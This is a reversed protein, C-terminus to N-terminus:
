FSQFYVVGDSDRALAVTSREAPTSSDYYPTGDTDLGVFVQIGIDSMVLDDSYELNSVPRRQEVWKQEITRHPTRSPLPRNQPSDDEFKVYITEGAIEGQDPPIRLLMIESHDSLEDFDEREVKSDTVIVFSGERLARVGTTLVADPRGIPRYKGQRVPRTTAGFSQPGWSHATGPRLPDSLWLWGSTWLVPGVLMTPSALIAGSPYIARAVAGYVQSVGIPIEEDYITMQQSIVPMPINLGRRIIRYPNQAIVSVSTNGVLGGPSWEIGDGPRFVPDFMDHVEAAATAGLVIIVLRGYVATSSPSGSAYSAVKSAETVTAGTTTSVVTLASNLWEIDVHYSRATSAGVNTVTAAATYHLNPAVAFYESNRISFSGAALSQFRMAYGSQSVTSLQSGTISSNSATAWLNYARSADSSLISDRGQIDIEVSGEDNLVTLTLSPQAPPLLSVVFEGYSWGSYVGTTKVRIYARYIKGNDLDIPVTVQRTTADTTEGTDWVATATLPDSVGLDFVDKGIIRVQYTQQPDNEVDFMSWQVVPNSVIVIDVPQIVTVQAATSGTVNVGTSYPSQGGYGDRIAIAFTWAVGNAVEGTRFAYSPNTGSLFYETTQWSSGNWWENVGTAQKRRIAFAAQGSTAGGTGIYYSNAWTMTFGAFLDVIAGNQPYTLSSAFPPVHLDFQKYAWYSYQLGGPPNPSSNVKVYARMTTHNPLDVDPTVSTSADSGSNSWTMGTMNDPNYGAASYVSSKVIQSQWGYQATGEADTYTWAVPPRSITSPSAPATVTAVPPTSTYLNRSAAQAGWLGSTDQTHVAWQWLGSNPIKGPPITISTNSGASVDTGNDPNLISGNWRYWTGAPSRLLLVAQNQPGGDPDSFTWSFTVGLGNADVVAGSGPTNLIPAYPPSNPSPPKPPLSFSTFASPAAGNYAGSLQVNATYTPGGGPSQGQGAITQRGLYAAQNSQLNNQFNYTASRTGSLTVTQADNFNWSSDCQVYTDIYVNISPTSYDYGDTSWEIGVRLHGNFGGWQITM